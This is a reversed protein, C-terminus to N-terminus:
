YVQTQLSQHTEMEHHSLRATKIHLLKRLRFLKFAGVVIAAGVLPAVVYLWYYQYFNSIFAAGFSRAPNTSTGSWNTEAWVMTGYLVPMAYPTYNRIKKIGVFVFVVAVLCITTIIEGFFATTVGASGPLTIGYQISKGQHQWLLLPLSGVAAGLMQSIIYGACAGATMKGQLWFAFSMAPNIHAGSIKGVRSLGIICGTTGFLFGTLLRRWGASPILKATISGDGWNFIVISLGVALLLATGIFEAIFLPWLSKVPQNKNLTM